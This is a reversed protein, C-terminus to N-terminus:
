ALVEDPHPSDASQRIREPEAARAMDRDSFLMQTSQYVDLVHHETVPLFQAVFQGFEFTTWERYHTPIAPPGYRTSATGGWDAFIELSPTSLVVCRASSAQLAKLLIDPEPIHEIVDSCIVLDAGDFFRPEFGGPTWHRDPYTQKLFSLTPELELGTTDFDRFYKMLKYGSGCGFDVIRRYGREKAIRHAFSYVQDQYEDTSATDDWHEIEVRSRYGKALFYSSPTGDSVIYDDPQAIKVSTSGALFGPDLTKELLESYRSIVAPNDIDYEALFRENKEAEKADGGREIAKLIQEVATHVEHEPYFFGVREYFPSNHVLPLGMHLAEKYLNNLGNEHQHGLLLARRTFVDYTPYRPYFTVRENHAQLVSLNDVFNHLFHEEQAFGQSNLIYAKGFADPHAQFLHELIIMPVLANKTSSINPEMVFIDPKEPLAEDVFRTKTFDSGWIYPVVDVECRHLTTLLSAQPAYHPLLWMRDQGGVYLNKPLDNRVFLGENAIFLQNGCRLGIIKAGTTERLLQKDQVSITIGAEIIIDFREGANVVGSLTQCTYSDGDFQIPEDRDTTLMCPSHGMRKFLDFYFKINQAIGSGWWNQVDNLDTRFTIGIRLGVSDSRTM